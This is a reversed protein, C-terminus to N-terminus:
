EDSGAAQSERLRERRVRALGIGIADFDDVVRIKRPEAPPPESSRIKGCSRCIVKGEAKAPVVLKSTCVPCPWSAASARERVAVPEPFSTVFELVIPPANRVYEVLKDYEEMTLYPLNM